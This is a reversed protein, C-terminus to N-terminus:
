TRFRGCWGTTFAVPILITGKKLVLIIATVDAPLFPTNVSNYQRKLIEM